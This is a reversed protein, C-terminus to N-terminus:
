SALVSNTFSQNAMFVNKNDIVKIKECNQYLM